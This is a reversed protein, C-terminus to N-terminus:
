KGTVEGMWERRKVLQGDPILVAVYPMNKKIPRVEWQVAETTGHRVTVNRVPEDTALNFLKLELSHKSPKGTLAKVQAVIRASEQARLSEPGTLTVSIESSLDIPIAYRGGSVTTIPVCVGAVEAEWVGGANVEVPGFRGDRGTTATLTRNGRVLRVTGGSVPMGRDTVTGSVTAPACLIGAAGIFPASNAVSAEKWQVPHYARSNRSHFPVDNELDWGIAGYCVRGPIYAEGSMGLIADTGVGTVTSVAFPNNGLIWNIQDRALQELAPDNAALALHVLAVASQLFCQNSARPWTNAGRARAASFHRLFLKGVPIFRERPYHKLSSAPGRKPLPKEVDEKSFLGGPMCYYPAHFATLERWYHRGSIKLAGYWRIWDEDDPFTRCLDAIAISPDAWYQVNAFPTKRKDSCWFFGTIREDPVQSFDLAMLDVLAKGRALAAERHAAKHTAQYLRICAQTSVSRVEISPGAGCGDENGPATLSHRWAREAAAMCREALDPDRDRHTMAALAMAEIFMFTASGDVRSLRTNWWKDDDTGVVNDTFYSQVYWSWLMRNKDEKTLGVPVQGYYIGGSPDQHKLVFGLGWDMEDLLHDEDRWLKPTFAPSLPATIRKRGLLIDSMAKVPDTSIRWSGLAEHLRLGHRCVRMTNGPIQYTDGADYWGGTFDQHEGNDLRRADDLSTAKHYPTDCASRDCRLFYLAADVAPRLADEAITFPHSKVEGVRIEYRGCQEFRSFDAARCPGTPSTVARLEGALAARGAEIDWLTYENGAAKANVLAVKKGIPKYGVQTTVVVRPDPDWGRCKRPKVRLLVADTIFYRQVDGEGPLSGRNQGRMYLTNIRSRYAKDHYHFDWVVRSWGDKRLWQNRDTDTSGRSKLPFASLDLFQHTSGTTYVWLVLRNFKAFAASTRKLITPCADAQRHAGLKLDKSMCLAAGREGARLHEVQPQMWMLKSNSPRWGEAEVFDWLPTAPLSSLCEQITEILLKEPPGPEKTGAEALVGVKGRATALLREIEETPMEFPDVEERIAQAVLSLARNLNSAIAGCNGDALIDRPGKAGIEKLELDDFYASGADAIGVRIVVTAVAPVTDFRTSLRQWQGQTPTVQRLEPLGAVTWIQDIVEGKQDYTGVDLHAGRVSAKVDSTQFDSPVFVWVSVEYEASPKVGIRGTLAQARTFHTAVQNTASLKIAYRGSHARESTVYEAAEPWAVSDGKQQGIAEFSPDTVLNRAAEGALATQCTGTLAAYLALVLPTHQRHM